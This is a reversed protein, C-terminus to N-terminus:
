GTSTSMRKGPVSLQGEQILLLSFSKLFHKMILRLSLINSSRAPSSGVVEQSGTWRVDSQAVSAPWGLSHYM